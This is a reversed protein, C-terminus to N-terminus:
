LTSKGSYGASGWFKVAHQRCYHRRYLTLRRGEIRVRIARSFVANRLCLPSLPSLRSRNKTDVLAECRRTM